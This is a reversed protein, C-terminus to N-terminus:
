RRLIIMSPENGSAITSTRALLHQDQDFLFLKKFSLADSRKALDAVLQEQIEPNLQYWADSLKVILRGLRFNTQVADILAEGYLKSIDVVQAQISSVLVQEPAIPVDNAEPPVLEQPAPSIVVPPAPPRWALVISLAVIFVIAGVPKAFIPKLEDANIVPQLTTQLSRGIPALAVMTKKWFDSNQLKQWSNTVTQNAWIKALVVKLPPDIREIAWYVFKLLTPVLTDKTFQWVQALEGKINNAM